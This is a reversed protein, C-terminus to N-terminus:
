FCYYHSRPVANLGLSWNYPLYLARLTHDSIDFQFCPDFTLNLVSECAMVEYQHNECKSARASVILSIFPQKAHCGWKVKFYPHVTFNLAKLLNVIWPKGILQQGIGFGLVSSLSPVLGKLIIVGMQGQRHSMAAMKDELGPWVVRLFAKRAM